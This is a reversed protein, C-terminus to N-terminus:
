ANTKPLHLSSMELHPFKRDQLNERLIDLTLLVIDALEPRERLRADLNVHEGDFVGLYSAWARFRSHFEGVRYALPVEEVPSSRPLDPAPAQGAQASEPLFEDFLKDCEDAIQFISPKGLLAPPSEHLGGM